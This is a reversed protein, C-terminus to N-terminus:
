KALEVFKAHTEPSNDAHHELIIDIVDPVFAKVRDIISKAEKYKGLMIYADALDLQTDVRKNPNAPSFLLDLKPKVLNVIGNYDSLCFRSASDFALADVLTDFESDPVLPYIRAAIAVVKSHASAYAYLIEIGILEDLDNPHANVVKEQLLIANTLYDNANAQDKEAERVLRAVTWHYFEEQKSPQGAILSDCKEILYFQSPLIDFAEKYYAYAHAPNNQALAEDGLSVFKQSEAERPDDQLKFNIPLTYWVNVNEGNLVGPTWKPLAKVVREAETDLLPNVSKVIEVNGVSGDKFVTFKVLVKGQINNEACEQPYYINEGLWQMLGNIGGPFQPQNDLQVLELIDGKNGIIEDNAVIRVETVKQEDAYALSSVCLLVIIAINKIRM